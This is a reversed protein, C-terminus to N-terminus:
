LLSSTPNPGQVVTDCSVYILGGHYRSGVLKWCDWSWVRLGTSVVEIGLVVRGLVQDICFFACERSLTSVFPVTL